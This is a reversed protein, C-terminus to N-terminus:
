GGTTKPIEDRLVVLSGAAWRLRVRQGAALATELGANAAEAVLTVSESLRVLRRLSAGLFVEELLIGQLEGTEAEGALVEIKEHRLALSVAAGPAVDDPLRAPLHLGQVSVGCPTAVGELFNSHGMFEAVFRRQPQEYVERPTGVQLIRGGQMVAVRDSMAIAEGQDHTVFVFTSGSAQQLRRLEQQMQLRLQLDLAGLPEDLLLVQPDNVLARAMAVRQRQGGSLAEIRRQGYGELRVLALAEGVRRRIAARPLRKMQLGFGINQAVNMHPFLALHQFIMNTRRRHAPEAAVNRGDMWVEGASPREFGGIIRLLTTKGCGSPGLLSFFEGRRIDLDAAELASVAGFRKSVGRISVAVM